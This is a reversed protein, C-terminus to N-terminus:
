ILVALGLSSMIAVIAFPGPQRDYTIAMEGMNGSLHQVTVLGKFENSSPQEPSPKEKSAFLSSMKVAGAPNSAEFM